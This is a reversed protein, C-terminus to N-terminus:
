GENEENLKEEKIDKEIYEEGLYEYDNNRM